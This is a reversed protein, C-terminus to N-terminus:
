PSPASPNAEPVSDVSEILADATPAAQRSYTIPANSLQMFTEGPKILGLDLRAHEEIASLGSKLDQVDALLISNVYQQEEILREQNKLKQELQELNARGYDGHWYQIQMLVLIILAVIVAILYGLTTSIRRKPTYTMGM